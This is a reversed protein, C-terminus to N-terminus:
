NHLHRHRKVGSHGEFCQKEGSLHEPVLVRWRGTKDPAEIEFRGNANTQATARTVWTGHQRRQAVVATEKGCNEGGAPPDQEVPLVKGSLVLKRNQGQGKHSLDFDAVKVHTAFATGALMFTALTTGIVLLPTRRM